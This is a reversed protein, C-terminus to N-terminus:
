LSGGEVTYVDRATTRNESILSHTPATKGWGDRSEEPLTTDDSMKIM